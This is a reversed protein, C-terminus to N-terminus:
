RALILPVEDELCAEECCDGQQGGKQSRRFLHLLKAAAAGRGGAAQSYLADRREAGSFSIPTPTSHASGAPTAASRKSDHLAALHLAAHPPRGTM